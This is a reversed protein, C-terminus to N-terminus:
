ILLDKHCDGLHYDQLPICYTTTSAGTWGGTALERAPVALKEGTPRDRRQRALVRNQGELVNKNPIEALVDSGRVRIRSAWLM